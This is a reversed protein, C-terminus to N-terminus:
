CPRYEIKGTRVLRSSDKEDLSLKNTQKNLPVNEKSFPTRPVIPIQLPGFPGQVGEVIWPHIASHQNLGIWHLIQVSFIKRKDNMGPWLANVDRGDAPAFNLKGQTCWAALTRKM